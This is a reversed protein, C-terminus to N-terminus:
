IIGLPVADFGEQGFGFRASAWADVVTLDDIANEVDERGTAAPLVQRVVNIGRILGAVAAQEIILAAADPLFNEALQHFFGVAFAQEIEIVSVM